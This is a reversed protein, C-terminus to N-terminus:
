VNLWPRAAGPTVALGPDPGGGRGRPGGTATAAPTPAASMRALGLAGGATTAPSEETTMAVGEALVAGEAFERFFGDGGWDGEAPSARLDYQGRAERCLGRFQGFLGREGVFGGVDAVAIEGM